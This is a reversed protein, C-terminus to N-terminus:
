TGEQIGAHRALEEVLADAVEPRLGPISTSGAASATAVEVSVLGFARLLPGATTDVTQVRAHPVVQWRRWLWGRAVYLGLETVEYGYHRYDLRPTAFASVALGAVVLGGLIGVSWAATGAGALATVTAAVATVLAAAGTAVMGEVLWYTQMRPDLRNAPPRLIV